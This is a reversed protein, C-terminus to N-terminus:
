VDGNLVDEGFFNDRLYKYIQWALEMIPDKGSLIWKRRQKNNLKQWLPLRDAMQNRLQVLRNQIASAATAQGTLNLNAM